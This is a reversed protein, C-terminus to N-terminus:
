EEGFSSLIAVLQEISVKPAKDSRYFTVSTPQFHRFELGGRSIPLVVYLEDDEVLSALEDESLLEEHLKEGPRAGVIEVVPLPLGKNLCYQQVAQSLDELKLSEMKLIFTEGGECYCAAKITLNVAEQISMFFRTMNPDTITMPKGTLAQNMLVPFVSGRSGIVNGFRVSCFKTDKNNLKYNAQKFLKETILKTAGMTNSPNIAKDTSINIVKKVKNLISARIVNDSGYNNTKVTEFPNEECIPVQKLAAAHFVIDMGRVAFNVTEYDRVDGLIFQLRKENAYKLKMLYQKTDDRNFVVIQKPEYALLTSVIREGISGTGGTVLINKNRFFSSITQSSISIM